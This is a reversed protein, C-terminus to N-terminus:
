AWTAAADPVPAPGEALCNVGMERKRNGARPHLPWRKRPIPVTQSQIASRWRHEGPRRKSARRRRAKLEPHPKCDPALFLWRFARFRGSCGGSPCRLKTPCLSRGVCALLKEVAVTRKRRAGRGELVRILEVPDNKCLVRGWRRVTKPDVEFTECLAKLKVGANCLRGLLLKWAPDERDNNVIEIISYGYFVILREGSDDEYLAFVPNRKDTGLILQGTPPEHLRQGTTPRHAPPKASPLPEPANPLLDAVLPM